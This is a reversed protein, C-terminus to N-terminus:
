LLKELFRQLPSPDEIRMELLAVYGRGLKEHFAGLKVADKETTIVYDARADDRLRRVAAIEDAGYAAHDPFPVTGAIRLGEERLAEFFSGPDAIGAFAVGTLGRLASFPEEDGGTFPLAGRLHHFARCSPIDQLEPSGEGPLCRTFLLLDARKAASEPERLPGAPLIRGNGFPSRCDLLLINLDRSLRMHQFGDDMIFIDPNLRETALLGARWRNAGVVVMLGPVSQAMLYPEDGAEAPSLFVTKGDSVIRIDGGAEGGYGRSLVAVRKGRSMLLKALMIVTPTKGTGGVTINGVSIVPKNLSYSRFVGTRYCLARLRLALAYPLSLFTLLALLLRDLVGTQEGQWLRRFYEESSM